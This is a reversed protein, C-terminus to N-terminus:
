VDRLQYEHKNKELKNLKQCHLKACHCTTLLIHTSHCILYLYIYKGNLDQVICVQPSLNFILICIVGTNQM